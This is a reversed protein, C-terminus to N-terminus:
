VLPVIVFPLGVYFFTIKTLFRWAASLIPKNVRCTSHGNGGNQVKPEKGKRLKILLDTSWTAISLHTLLFPNKNLM